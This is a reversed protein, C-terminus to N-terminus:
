GGKPGDRRTARVRDRVPELLLRMEATYSAFGAFAETPVAGPDEQHDAPPYPEELEEILRGLEGEDAEIRGLLWQLVRRQAELRGTLDDNSLEGM